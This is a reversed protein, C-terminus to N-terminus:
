AARLTRSALDEHERGIEYKASKKMNEVAWLPQLNTYHMAIKQQEIDTLDFSALPRIHDIHWDGHNEWTMGDKFLSEIHKRAKEVPCGILQETTAIKKTKSRVLATVIRARLVARLKYGPDAKFRKRRYELEYKTRIPRISKQYASMQPLLIDKNKEYYESHYKLVKAKHKQYWRKKAALVKDRNRSRWEVEKKRIAEANIKKYEKRYEKNRERWSKLCARIEEKHSQRYKRNSESKSLAMAGAM